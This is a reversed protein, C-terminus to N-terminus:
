AAEVAGGEDPRISALDKLRPIPSQYVFWVAVMTGLAGLVMTARLGILSGFVGGLLAGIAASGTVAFQYGANTRGLVDSTVAAQRVSIAQIGYVTLGAGNILLAIAVIPAAVATSGAAVPILLPAANAIVISGLLTPGLGWRRSIRASVFSGFLAGVGEASLVLGVVLSSFHLERSLHLILVSWLMQNFLNYIGAEIGLARLYVNGAALKVGHGIQLLLSKHPGTDVVPAPERRRVTSLSLASVLYTAADVLIAAPATITGVLLGALGPGSMTAFSQSGTLKGNGEVLHDQGVLSPLYSQYALDFVVSLGAGLFVLTSLLGISMIKLAIALPIAGFLVTRGFNSMILLPLRRMKDVWVGIVLTFFLYPLFQAAQLVGMELPTANLTTVALLPIAVLSVQTGLLSLSESSWLRMFDGDRWLSGKPPASAPERGTAAATAVDTTKGEEVRPVDMTTGKERGSGHEPLHNV